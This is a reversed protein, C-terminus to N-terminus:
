GAIEMVILSSGMRDDYEGAVRDPVTRNVYMTTAGSTSRGSAQIKYTVPSLTNPADLLIAHIPFIPGHTNAFTMDFAFSATGRYRGDGVGDAVRLTTSNRVVNIYTKWYDSSTAIDSIIVFRSSVSQPNLTVSLGPVDVFTFGSTAFVDTKVAHAVQLVAGAGFNTRAAGPALLSPTVGSPGINAVAAGTELSSSNIRSLTM